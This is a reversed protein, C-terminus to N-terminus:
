KTYGSKRAYRNKGAGIYQGVLITAAASLGSLPMFSTSMLTIAAQHAALFTEDIHGIFSSFMAFSGTDLLWLVGIPVGIRLLRWTNEKSFRFASLTNFKHAYKRSFFVMVYLIASVASAILTAIAAGKVELRPFGFKGFILVYDGVFNVLNAVIAIIMPTTTNGIGRLFSSGTMTIFVFLGAYLRIRAYTSGLAYVGDSLGVLGLLLSVLPIAALVIAYSVVALYFGQWTIGGIEEYRKAGYSQAVFTNVSNITGNFFSLFSWVFIGSIGVAALAEKSVRGVMATDLFWMVTHSVMTVIVPLALKLVESYGGPNPADLAHEQTTVKEEDHMESNYNKIQIASVKPGNQKIFLLNPQPVFGLSVCVMTLQRNAISSQSKYLNWDDIKM